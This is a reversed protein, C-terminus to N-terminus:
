WRPQIAGGPGAQGERGAFRGDPELDYAVGEIIDEHWLESHAVQWPGGCNSSLAEEAGLTHIDRRGLRWHGPLIIRRAIPKWRAPSRHQNFRAAHRHTQWAIGAYWMAGGSVATFILAVASTHTGMPLAWLMLAATTLLSGACRLILPGLAWAVVTLLITLGVSM